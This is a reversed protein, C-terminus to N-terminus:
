DKLVQYNELHFKTKYRMYKWFWYLEREKLYNNNDQNLYAEQETAQFLYAQMHNYRLVYRAYLYEFKSYIFVLWLTEVFQMHHITEHLIRVNNMEHNNFRLIVFPFPAAAKATEKPFWWLLSVINMIKESHILIPKYTFKCISFLFFLIWWAVLILKLILLTYKM